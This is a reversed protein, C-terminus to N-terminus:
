DRRRGLLADLVAATNSFDAFLFDPRHEALDAFPYAGTAIAVTRAGIARGCEIDRPTDGIVYIREPPFEEGHKERARIRAFKGLENRDHHDDGFAGFEFYHWVGYHILKIKAGRCINGTLLALVCEPHAHLKELLALMGAHLKGHHSAIRRSLLHVYTDLLASINEPTAPIGHKSLLNRAILGDTAGALHIGVFDEVVGFRSTMAEKLSAEGAGGSTILTGDIDFLLLRRAAPADLEAM